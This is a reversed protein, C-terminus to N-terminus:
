PLFRGAPSSERRLAYGTGKEYTMTLTEPLSFDERERRLYDAIMTDYSSTHMFVKQMLYFKTELTIGGNKLEELIRPYDAPDTVVAVDQYNKAAARLM